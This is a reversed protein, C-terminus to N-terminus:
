WARAFAAVLAITGVGAVMARILRPRAIIAEWCRRLRCATQSYGAGEKCRRNQMPAATQTAPVADLRQEGNFQLTPPIVRGIRNAGCGVLQFM